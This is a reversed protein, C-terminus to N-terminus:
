VFLVIAVAGAGFVVAYVLWMITFEQEAVPSPRLWWNLRSPKKRYAYVVASRLSVVFPLLLAVSRWLWPELAPERLAMVILGAIGAALYGYALKQATSWTEFSPRALRVRHAGRGPIEISM